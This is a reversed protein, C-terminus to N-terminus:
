SLGRLPLNFVIPPHVPRYQLDCSSANVFRTRGDYTVGHGEHIHGFVHYLPQIRQQVEALLNVCGARVGSITLDGRGLPPGHTILVDTNSPIRSWAEACADGRGLNFAWSYFAPQWPSGYFRYGFLEVASDELYIFADSEKM